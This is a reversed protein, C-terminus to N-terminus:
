DFVQVHNDIAANNVITFLDFCDNNIWHRDGSSYIIQHIMCHFVITMFLFSISIHCPHIKFIYALHFFDSVFPWLNYLEM